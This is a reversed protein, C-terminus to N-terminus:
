GVRRKGFKKFVAEKKHSYLNFLLVIRAFIPLKHDKGGM